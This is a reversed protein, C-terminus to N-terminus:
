ERKKEEKKRKKEDKKRKAVLVVVSKHNIHGIETCWGLPSKGARAGKNSGFMSTKM